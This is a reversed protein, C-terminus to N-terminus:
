VLGQMRLHRWPLGQAMERISWQCYALNAMWQIRHLNEVQGPSEVQERTMWQDTMVSSVHAAVGEVCIVPIGAVIADVAVNSHHTVVCWCNALEAELPIAHPSFRTGPIPRADKWSPKPRYVITRHTVQQLREIAEREWEEPKFGEAIAGKDGMGAVLIHGNPNEAARWPKVDLNFHALRDSSMAKRMLYATPHRAGVSIKHYGAWRGGERRGWYGLDIYVARAEQRYAEFIAPTNGELGYFVAVDAQISGDWHREDILRVPDGCARIGAVM